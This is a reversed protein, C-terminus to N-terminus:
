RRRGEVVFEFLEAKSSRKRLTRTTVKDFGAGAFLQALAKETEVVYGYFSANGVVYYFEGGPRLVERLASVHLSMDAFYRRVYQAMLGASGEPRKAIREAVGEILDPVCQAGTPHWGKLRSTAAGWTGGIASWDLAGADSPDELFGMWYMYPRLERMSSVRNPYPPSTIVVEYAEKEVGDLTRADAKRVLAHGPPTEPASALVQRVANPFPHEPLGLAMQDPAEKGFSLSVRRRTLNALDILVRCFGVLLLDRTPGSCPAAEIGSKLQRLLLQSGPSWWRDLNHLRPAPLLGAGAPVLGEAISDALARADAIDRESYRRFKVSALWLLFPNIDVSLSDLGQSAASLGTTGTGGFPDIVPGKGSTRALLEEVLRVSYAPTIRLWGHRGRSLNQRSTYELRQKLPDHVAPGGSRSGTM